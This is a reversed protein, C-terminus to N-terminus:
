DPGLRVQLSDLMIREVSKKGCGGVSSPVSVVVDVGSGELAGM